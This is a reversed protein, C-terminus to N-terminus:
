CASIEVHEDGATRQEAFVIRATLEHELPMDFPALDVRQEISLGRAPGLAARIPLDREHGRDNAGGFDIWAAVQPDREDHRERVDVGRGAVLSPGHLEAGGADDTRGAERKSTVPSQEDRGTAVFEIRTSRGGEGLSRRSLSGISTDNKRL